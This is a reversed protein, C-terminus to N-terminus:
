GGDCVRTGDLGQGGEKRGCHGDRTGVLVWGGEFDWDFHRQCTIGQDGPLKGDSTETM